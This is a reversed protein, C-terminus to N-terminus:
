NVQYRQKLMHKALAAGTKPFMNQLKTSFALANRLKKEQKEGQKKAESWIQKEITHWLMPVAFIHTVQHRRCTKLITEPNYDRMFVLTRGFFTFWLFVAVLGFVHYFPLFALQKLRGKYHKAIRPTWHFIDEYALMQASLEKGTYFCIVENMSTASSSFAIENEFVEAPVAPHDGELATVDLSETYFQSQGTCISYRINLTHFINETLNKPYRMNVLYPKNGSMLIAWFAAVWEV